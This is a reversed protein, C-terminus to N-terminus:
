RVLGRHRAVPARGLGRAGRAAHEADGRRVDRDHRLGRARARRLRLLVRDGRPRDAGRRHDPGPREPRAREQGEVARAQARDGGPGQRAPQGLRRRAQGQGGERRHLARAQLDRGERRRRGRGHRDRPDHDERAPAPRDPYPDAQGRRHRGRPDEHGRGLVGADRRGGVHRVLGDARARAGAAPVPLDGAAQRAAGAPRHVRGGHVAPERALARLGEAPRHHRVHVRDDGHGRARRGRDARTRGHGRDRRRPQASRRAHDRRRGRGVARRRARARAAARPGLRDERGARRGRAARGELGSHSLVYECEESSNTHYVPVVVAGACFAGFDAMTWEPVTGCLIAVPDGTEVGLSALGGAIERIARGFDAYTITSRGPARM